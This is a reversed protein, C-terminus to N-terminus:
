KGLNRPRRNYETIAKQFEKTSFAPWLTQTFYFESDATQWMLFGASWHPNGGTRIVLDVPPLNRTWLYDKLNKEDIEEGSSKAKKFAAAMERKGDYAMLITLFLNKYDKTAEELNGIVKQLSKPFFERWEGIVKINVQNEHIEKDTLYKKFKEEFLKYLFKVEMASRKLVNDRSAAWATIHSIRARRAERLIKELTDDMGKRHGQYAQLGHLRAWRRNGDPIIAVHNLKM